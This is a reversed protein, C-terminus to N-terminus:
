QLRNLSMGTGSLHLAECPVLVLCCILMEWTHLTDNNVYKVQGIVQM